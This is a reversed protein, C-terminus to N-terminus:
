DTLQLKGLQIYDVKPSLFDPVVAKKTEVLITAAGKKNLNASYKERLEAKFREQYARISTRAKLIAMDLTDIQEFDYVEVFPLIGALENSYDTPDVGQKLGIEFNIIQDLPKGM